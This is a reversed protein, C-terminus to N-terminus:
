WLWWCRSFSPLSAVLLRCSILLAGLVGLLIAYPVGILLLAVSDLLAVILAELQLGFMYSQIAGKTQVLVVSVVKGDADAFVEYLFNLLLNKYFLFLFTYIPLLVVMELTGMVTGMAFALMPKLGTEAQAIYENQKKTNISLDSRAMHQLTGIMKGIKQKFGPLESSFSGVEMILFYGIGTIVAMAFIISLTIALVKPLKKKELWSTLPNLLIALLLAFGATRPYATVCVLHVRAIGLRFSHRNSEHLFPIEEHHDPIHEM